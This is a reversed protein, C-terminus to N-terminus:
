YASRRRPGGKGLDAQKKSIKKCRAVMAAFQEAEEKADREDDAKENQEEITAQERLFSQHLFSDDYGDDDDIQLSSAAFSTNSSSPNSPSFTSPTLAEVKLPVWKKVQEELRTLDTESDQDNFPTNVPANIPTSPASASLGHAANKGARPIRSQPAENNSSDINNINLAKVLGSSSGSTSHAM